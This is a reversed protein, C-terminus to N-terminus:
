VPMAIYIHNAEDFFVDNVQKVHLFHHFIKLYLM